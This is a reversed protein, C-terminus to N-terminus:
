SLVNQNRQALTARETSPPLLLNLEPQKATAGARPWTALTLKCSNSIHKQKM